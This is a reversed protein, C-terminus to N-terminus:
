LHAIEKLVTLVNLAVDRVSAMARYTTREVDGDRLPPSVRDSIEACLFEITGVRVFIKMTVCSAMEGEPIVRGEFRLNGHVEDAHFGTVTDGRWVLTTIDSLITTTTPALIPSM